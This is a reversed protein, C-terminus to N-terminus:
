TRGLEQDLFDIARPYADLQNELRSLGHGENEYILLQCTVGRRKLSETLQEAESVPVRPDNRGHIVFLPARIADVHTLPSAEVLFERDHTLSGYELERYARRTGGDKSTVVEADCREGTGSRPLGRSTSDRSWQPLYTLRRPTPSPAIRPRGCPYSSIQRGPWRRSIRSTIAPTTQGAAV